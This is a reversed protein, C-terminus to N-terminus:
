DGSEFAEEEEVEAGDAVTIKEDGPIDTAEVENTEEASKGETVAPDASKETSLKKLLDKLHQDPMEELMKLPLVPEQGLNLFIMPQDAAHLNFDLLGQYMLGIYETRLESFDVVGSVWRNVRGQRIKIKGNKLLELLRLVTADSITVDLSEVLAMARLLADSSDPQGPRFLSGGYIPLADHLSLTYIETTATDNFFFFFFFIPYCIFLFFFIIYTTFFYLFSLVYYFTHFFSFISFIQSSSTNHHM